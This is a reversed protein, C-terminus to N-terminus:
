NFQCAMFVSYRDYFMFVYNRSKANKLNKTIYAIRHVDQLVKRCPQLMSVRDNGDKHPLHFKVCCQLLKLLTFCYLEWGSFWFVSVFVTDTQIEFLAMHNVTLKLINFISEFFM